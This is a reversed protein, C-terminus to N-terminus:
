LNCTTSGLFSRRTCEASIHVVLQDKISKLKDIEDENVSAKQIAADLMNVIGDFHSRDELYGIKLRAVANKLLSENEM